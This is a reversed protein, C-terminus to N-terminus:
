SCPSSGDSRPSPKPRVGTPRRRRARARIYPQFLDASVEHATIRRKAIWRGFDAILRIQLKITQQPYGEKRMEAAYPDVYLGLPSDQRCLQHDKFVQHM